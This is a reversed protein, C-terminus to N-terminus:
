QSLEIYDFIFNSFYPVNLSEISRKELGGGAVIGERVGDEIIKRQVAGTTVVKPDFRPAM